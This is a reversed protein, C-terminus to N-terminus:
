GVGSDRSHPNLIRSLWIQLRKGAVSRNKLSVGNKRIIMQPPVCVMIHTHLGTSLKVFDTRGEAKIHARPIASRQGLKQLLHRERSLWRVQGQKRQMKPTNSRGGPAVPLESLAKPVFSLCTDDEGLFLRATDQSLKPQSVHRNSWQCRPICLINGFMM